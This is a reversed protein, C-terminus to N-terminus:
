VCIRTKSSTKSILRTMSTLMGNVLAYSNPSVNLRDLEINEERVKNLEAQSENAYAEAKKLRENALSVKDDQEQLASRLDQKELHLAQLARDSSMQSSNLHEQAIDNMRQELSKRARALAVREANVEDLASRLERTQSLSSVLQTQLEAVKSTSGDFDETLTTVKGELREKDKKWAGGNYLEDDYRLQLEDLESRATRNEERLRSMQDRLSQLESFSRTLLGYGLRIGYSEGDISQALEGQYKIRTQEIRFDRESLDKQYQDREDEMEDALRRKLLEIDQLERNDENLQAQVEFLMQENDQLRQQTAKLDALTLNHAKEAEDL